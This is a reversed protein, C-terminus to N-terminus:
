QSNMGATSRGARSSVAAKAPDDHGAFCAGAFPQRLGPAPWGRNKHHCCLFVHIAPGFGRNRTVEVVRRPSGPASSATTAMPRTSCSRRQRCAPPGCRVSKSWRSTRSPRSGSRIPVRGQGAASRRPGTRQCICGYAVPLSAQHTVVSLSVAVGAGPDRGPCAEGPCAKAITRSAPRAAISGRWASRAHGKKPFGTDDVIWAQIPEALTM